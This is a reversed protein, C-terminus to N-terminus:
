WWSAEAVWATAWPMTGVAVPVGATVRATVVAAQVEKVLPSSVAKRTPDATDRTAASTAKTTKRLGAWDGDATSIMGSGAAAAQARLCRRLLLSVRAYWRWRTSGGGGSRGPRM